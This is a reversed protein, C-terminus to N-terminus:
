PASLVSWPEILWAGSGLPHELPCKARSRTCIQRGLTLVRYWEVSAAAIRIKSCLPSLFLLTLYVQTSPPTDASGRSFPRRVSVNVLVDFAILPIVVAKQMGIVCQGDQM